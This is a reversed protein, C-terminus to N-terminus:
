LLYKSLVRDGFSPIAVVVVVVVVVIAGNNSGAHRYQNAFWFFFILVCGFWFSFFFCTKRRVQPHPSTTLRASADVVAVNSIKRLSHADLGPKVGSKVHRAWVNTRTANKTWIAANAVGAIVATNRSQYCTM